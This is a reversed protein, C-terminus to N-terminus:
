FALLNFNVHKIFKVTTFIFHCLLIYNKLKLKIYLFLLVWQLGDGADNEQEWINEMTRKLINSIQWLIYNWIEGLSGKKVGDINMMWRITTVVDTVVVKTCIHLWLTLVINKLYTYVVDM